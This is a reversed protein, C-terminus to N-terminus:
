GAVGQDQVCCFLSFEVHVTHGNDVYMRGDRFLTCHRDNYMNYTCLNVQPERLVLVM